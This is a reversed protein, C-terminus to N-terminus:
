QKCISDPLRVGSGVKSMFCLVFQQREMKFDMQELIRFMSDQKVGVTRILTSNTDTRHTLISDGTKMEKRVASIDARSGVLRFNAASMIVSIVGLIALAAAALKGLNSFRAVWWANAVAHEAIVHTEEDEDRRNAHTRREPM